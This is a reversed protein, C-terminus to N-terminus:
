RTSVRLPGLRRGRRRRSRARGGAGQPEEPARTGGAAAGEARAEEADAVTPSGPQGPESGDPLVCQVYGEHVRAQVVGAQRRESSGEFLPQYEGGCVKHATSRWRAKLTRASALPGGEVALYRTGDEGPPSVTTREPRALHQLVPIAACAPLLLGVLGLLGPRMWATAEVCRMGSRLHWSIRVCPWFGASVVDKAARQGM